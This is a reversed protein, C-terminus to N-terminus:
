GTKKSIEDLHAQVARRLEILVREREHPDRISLFPRRADPIMRRESLWPVSKWGCYSYYFPVVRGDRGKLQLFTAVEMNMCYASHIFDDSVIPLLLDAEGLWTRITHDIIDGAKLNADFVIRAGTTEIPKLARIFRTPQDADETDVLLDRDHHSYSIFIQPGDGLSM